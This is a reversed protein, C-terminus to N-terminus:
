ALRAKIDRLLGGALLIRVQRPSLSHTVEFRAGNTANHVVIPRGHRLGDLVGRLELRDGQNVSDYDDAHQFTLPVIGWNVLNSWHIRAFSRAIVARLGLYMPAIAAHERSSGQGYNEGGVVIGGGAQRARAPFTADVYAFVHESIAPINSRLPLIRAGAPMIEDTSVNDGLKLLVQGSIVDAPAEPVPVPKINPGTYIEVAQGDAPPQIFGATYPEYTDPEVVLPPTGLDRPDAISGALATAGATEPSCLYVQDNATGSRGPFNRNFTRVSRSGFSPAAGMGICPGCAVELGRVGAASMAHMAGSRELNVLIQRSGPSLTCHLGPAVHKGRMMEAVTVLDTYGSNVSSGIAVQQVATGVVERVPVVNDPSSPQAILPVLGSLDIEIVEDYEAGPDPGLERWDNERGQARLFRRTSQDSPFIGSTAGLEQTMNCITARQYVGFQATGPGTYEMVRNLGGRVTLRRLLELIVDKASSWPALTGVLRVNVVEPMVIYLQDGAMAAAVELGGAGIGLMAVAGATCTHSDSGLLTEGPKHFRELGAFHSIGNGPRSFMAGYRACSTQLFMHDDANEFGTQLMNHDVYTTSVRNRVRPVGMAQFNLWVMTGTADQVLTQDIRLAIERGPQLDGEVLHSQIIKHTLTPRM